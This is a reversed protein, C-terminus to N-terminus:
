QTKCDEQADKPQDAPVGSTTGSPAFPNQYEGDEGDEDDDEDDESGGFVMEPDYDSDAAEGTYWLIANPVIQNMILMAIEFDMSLIKEISEYEDETELESLSPIENFFDFFTMTKVEKVVTKSNKKGSKGKRRVRKSEKKVALNMDKKWKIPTTETRLLEPEEAMHMIMSEMHYTKKLLTNDFFPNENFSFELAFGNNFEDPRTVQIDTLFAMAESDKEGLLTSLQPHNELCKFWFEPVIASTDDTGDTGDASEKTKGNVINARQERAAVHLKHYKVELALREALYDSNVRQTVEEHQQILGEVAPSLEGLATLGFTSAAVAGQVAGSLKLQDLAAAVDTSNVQSSPSTAAHLLSNSDQSDDLSRGAPTNKPARTGPVLLPSSIAPLDAANTAADENLIISM